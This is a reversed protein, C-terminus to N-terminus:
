SLFRESGLIILHGCALACLGALVDDVMIGLGGKLKKDVYGILLPKTIDFIRFLVLALFVLYWNQPYAIVAIFMGVFEDIVICGHDHVGLANEAKQCAAIGTAFVAIVILIQLYVPAYMLAICFPVAAISGFTGPAAPLLGSGFGAAM